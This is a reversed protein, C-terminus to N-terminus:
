WGGRRRWRRASRPSLRPESLSSGSSFTRAFRADSHASSPSSASRTSALRCTWPAADALDRRGGGMPPHEGPRQASPRVPVGEHRASGAGAEEHEAGVTQRHQQPAAVRGADRRGVGSPAPEHRPHELRGRLREPLRRPDPRRDARADARAAVRDGRVDTVGEGPPEAVRDHRPLGHVQRGGRAPGQRRPRGPPRDLGHIGAGGALRLAEERIATVAYTRAAPPCPRPSPQDCASEGARPAPALHALPDVGAAPTAPRGAPETSSTRAPLYMEVSSVGASTSAPTSTTPSFVSWSRRARRGQGSPAEREVEDAVQLPALHPVHHREHAQEVRDVGLPQSRLDRMRHFTRSPNEDFHVDGLLWGFTTDHGSSKPRENLVYRDM